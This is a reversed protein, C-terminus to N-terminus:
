QVRDFRAFLLTLQLDPFHSPEARSVQAWGEPPLMRQTMEVQRSGRKHWDAQEAQALCAQKSALNLQTISSILPFQKESISTEIEHSARM